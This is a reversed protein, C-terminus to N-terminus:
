KEEEDDMNRSLESQELVFSDTKGSYPIPSPEEKGEHVVIQQYPISIEHKDFLLKIQRNMERQIQFKDGEKCEAVFRLTVGSAGLANVGKYYPGSKIAPIKEKIVSLNEEIIGEVRELSEGYGIDVDCIAYSLERTMNVLTRIDSNNIVKIDGGADRIKTARIGIETVTGRFGDVVVVDGVDYTKEFVVFIGAIVDQLLPQIALGVVLSLIGIGAVLAGTDVGFASLIFFIIVVAAIYKIFSALLTIVASGHGLMLSILSILHRLAYAITFICVAYSFSLSWPSADASRSFIDISKYFDSYAISDVLRAFIVFATFLAALATIINAIVRSSKERANLNKFENKAM